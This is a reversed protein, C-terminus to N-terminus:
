EDQDNAPVVEASESAAHLEMAAAAQEPSKAHPKAASRARSRGRRKSASRAEADRAPKRARTVAKPKEPGLGPLPSRRRPDCRERDRVFAKIIKLAARAERETRQGRFYSALERNARVVERDRVHQDGGAGDTEGSKKRQGM